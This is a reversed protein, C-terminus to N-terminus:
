TCIYCFKKIKEESLNIYDYTNQTKQVDFEKINSVSTKNIKPNLCSNYYENVMQLMYEYNDSQVNNPQINNGIIKFQNREFSIVPLNSHNINYTILSNELITNYSKQLSVDLQFNTSQRLFNNQGRKVCDYLRFQQNKSYVNSDSALVRHSQKNMVLLYAMESVTISSEYIYCKNCHLRLNTVHASLVTILDSTTYKQLNFDINFSPCKHQIMSILFLHILMKIYVGLTINNEFLVTPNAHIFHFSIKQSTSRLKFFLITSM